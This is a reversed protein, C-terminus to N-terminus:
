DVSVDLRLQVGVLAVREFCSRLIPEQAAVERWQSAPIEATRRSTSVAVNLRALRPVRSRGEEIARALKECADACGPPIPTSACVWEISLTELDPFRSPVGESLSSPALVNALM